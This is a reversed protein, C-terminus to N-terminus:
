GGTAPAAVRPREGLAGGAGGDRRGSHRSVLLVFLVPMSGVKILTFLLVDSDQMLALTTLMILVPALLLRADDRRLSATFGIVLGVVVGLVAYAPPVGLPGFNLMAEGAIGFV